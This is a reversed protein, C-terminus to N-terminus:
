CREHSFLVNVGNTSMQCGHYLFISSQGADAGRPDRSRELNAMFLEWVVAALPAVTEGWTKKKILQLRRNRSM